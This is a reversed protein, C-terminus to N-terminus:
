DFAPYECFNYYVVQSGDIVHQFTISDLAGKTDNIIFGHKCQRQVNEFHFLRFLANFGMVDLETFPKEKTLGIGELIQRCGNALIELDQDDFDLPPQKFADNKRYKEPGLKLYLWAKEFIYFYRNSEAIRKEADSFQNILKNLAEKHSIEM